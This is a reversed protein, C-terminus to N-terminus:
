HRMADRGSGVLWSIAGGHSRLHATVARRDRRPSLQRTSKVTVPESIAKQTVVLTVEGAFRAPLPIAKARNRLRKGGSDSHGASGRVYDSQCAGADLAPATPKLAIQLQLGFAARGPSAAVPVM